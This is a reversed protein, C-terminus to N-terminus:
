HGPRLSVAQMGLLNSPRWPCLRWCEQRVPDLPQTLRSPLRLPCCGERGLAACWPCQPCLPPQHRLPLGQRTWSPGVSQPLAAPGGSASAQAQGRHPRRATLPRHLLRGVARDALRGEWGTHGLPRSGESHRGPLLNPKPKRSHGAARSCLGSGAEQPEWRVGAGPRDPHTCCAGAGVEQWRGHVAPHSGPKGGWSMGSAWQGTHPLATTDARRFAPTGARDQAGVAQRLRGPKGGGLVSPWALPRDGSQSFGKCGLGQWTQGEWPRHGGGAPMHTAADSCMEVAAHLSAWEMARRPLWRGSHGAGPLM